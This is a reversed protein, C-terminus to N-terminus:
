ARYVEGMGGKGLLELINYHGLTQGLMTGRLVEIKHRHLPLPMVRLPLYAGHLVVRFSKFVFPEGVPNSGTNDALSAPLRAEPGTAKALM